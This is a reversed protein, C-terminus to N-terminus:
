AARRARRLAILRVILMAAFFTVCGSLASWVPFLYNAFGTVSDTLAFPVVVLFMAAIAALCSLIPGSVPVALKKRYVTYVAFICIIGYAVVSISVGTEAIRRLNRPGQLLEATREAVPFRRNYTWLFVSHWLIGLPLIATVVALAIGYLKSGARTKTDTNM